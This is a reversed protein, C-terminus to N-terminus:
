RRRSSTRASARSRTRSRSPSAARRSSTTTSRAWRISASSRSARAEERKFSSARAASRAARAWAPASSTSTAARRSGSRPARRSTTRRPTPPTTTSTRTSALEADRARHAARGPLLQAPGGARRRHPLRRGARRVRAPPQDEGPEDQRADRLRVQLRAAGRPARAVSGHQREDGRRDHRRAQPRGGRRPPAPEVALRDKHSGGPNLFECKVYIEVPSAARHRQNLARHAHQRRGQQHGRASWQMMPHAALPPETRSPLSCGAARRVTEASRISDPPEHKTCGPVDEIRDDAVGLARSSRAFPSVCTSTPRTKRRRFCHCM